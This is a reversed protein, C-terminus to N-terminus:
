INARWWAAIRESIRATLAGPLDAMAVRILRRERTPDPFDEIGVFDFGFSGAHRAPLGEQELQAAVAGAIQWATSQDWDQTAGLTFYAGHHYTGIEAADALDSQLAHAAYLNNRVIFASRQASLKPWSESDWFPPLHAPDAAVGFLRVASGMEAALQELMARVSAACNRRPVIFVASGLRGYEVGLSDLKTHSRVLIAPLGAKACWALVRGLPAADAGWCSTDVLVLGCANGRPEGLRSPDDARASDILRVSNSSAAEGAGCHLSLNRDYLRIFELTESYCQPSALLHVAGLARELAVLLAAMASMGSSTYSAYHVDHDTSCVLARYPLPGRIVLDARQYGYAIEFPGIRAGTRGTWNTETLWWRDLLAEAKLEASLRFKQEIVDEISRAPAALWPRALCRIFLAIEQRKRHLYAATPEM